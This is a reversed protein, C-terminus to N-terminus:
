VAGGGGGALNEHDDPVRTHEGEDHGGFWKEADRKEKIRAAELLM